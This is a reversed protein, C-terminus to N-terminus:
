KIGDIVVKKVIELGRIIEDESTAYSFRLHGEGSEGFATGPACIVGNAVIKKALDKSPINQEFKPFAYFAGKPLHCTFGDIANLMKIMRKRRADFVPLVKRIFADQHDFTKWIAYQPPGPPCAVLHYQMKAIQDVISTPSTMFGLRWGPVAFSKSFSNLVVSMELETCFSFHEGEYIFDEYVEDSIVWLEHDKALDVLARFTNRSLVSGTPNSPSNVVLGKTRPTILEKLKEINPQFGEEESLDYPVARAEALVTDPQYLVFGPEPILVEDGPDFLTQFTAMTAQTGSASIIINDMTIDKNYRVAEKRAIAERLENIGKTPGYRNYGKDLSEKLADKAEQPPEFDLEGLGLNIADKSAM